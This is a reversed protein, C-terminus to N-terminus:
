ATETADDNEKLLGAEVLIPRIAANEGAVRARHVEGLVKDYPVSLAACLGRVTIELMVAGCNTTEWSRLLLGKDMVGRGTEILAQAAEVFDIVQPDQEYRVLAEAVVCMTEASMRVLDPLDNVLLADHILRDTVERLAKRTPESRQAPDPPAYPRVLDLEYKM